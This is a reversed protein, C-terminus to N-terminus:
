AAHRNRKLWAGLGHLMETWGAEHGEPGDAGDLYAGAENLRLLTGNGAPELEMTLIGAFILAGQHALTSASVIRSNPEIALYTTGNIYAEGGVPGFRAVDTHGVRFDFRDYSFTWGGSPAGWDLLAERTSLAAFVHALPAAYIRELAVTGHKISTMDM